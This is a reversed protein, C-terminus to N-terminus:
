ARRSAEHCFCGVLHDDVLGAAQLYSYCIVPGVFRFGRRALDKSLAESLPSRAPVQTPRRWSHRVPEGGVWDWLYADFSGYAAQLGLVGAANTIASEIKSRNRILGSDELLSDVKDVGFAAVVSPDFGGFARRYADRRKLVSLWSLGAQAGELVLLEFLRRDDHTARGWEEDHYPTLWPGVAWACRVKGDADEGTPTM